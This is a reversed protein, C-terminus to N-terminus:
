NQHNDNVIFLHPAFKVVILSYPVSRSVILLHPVFRNIILSHPVFRTVILSHPAFMNVAILSYPVFRALPSLSHILTINRCRLLEGTVKNLLQSLKSLQLRWDM